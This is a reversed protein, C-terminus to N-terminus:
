LIIRRTSGQAHITTRKPPRSSSLTTAIMDWSRRSLMRRCSALSKPADLYSSIYPLAPYLWSSKAVLDAAALGKEMAWIAVAKATATRDPSNPPRQRPNKPMGALRVRGPLDSFADGDTWQGGNPNGAPVRPQNSNDKFRLLM